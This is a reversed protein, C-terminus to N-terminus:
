TQSRLTINSESTDRDILFRTQHWVMIAALISDYLEYINAPLKVTQSDWRQEDCLGDHLSCVRWPDYSCTATQTSRNHIMVEVMSLLINKNEGVYCTFKFKRLSRSFEGESM